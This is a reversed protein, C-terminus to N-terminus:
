ILKNIASKIERTRRLFGAEASETMLTNLTFYVRVGHKKCYRRLLFLLLAAFFYSINIIVFSVKSSWHYLTGAILPGLVNGAMWSRNFLGIVHNLEKEDLGSTLWAMVPPWYLGTSISLIWYSAYVLGQANGHSVFISALFAVVTAVPFIKIPDFASGFRHYLNCGLFYFFQGIAIFAGIQGPTFSFWDTLRYIMSFGLINSGLSFFFSCGYAFYLKKM